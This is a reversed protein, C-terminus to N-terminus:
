RRTKRSGLRRQATEIRQQPRSVFSSFEVASVFSRPWEEDDTLLMDEWLRSVTAGPETPEDITGPATSHRYM